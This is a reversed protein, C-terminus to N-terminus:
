VTAAKIAEPSLFMVQLNLETAQPLPLAVKNVMMMDHSKFGVAKM